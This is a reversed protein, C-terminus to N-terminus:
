EVLAVQHHRHFGIGADRADAFATGFVHQFLAGAAQDALIRAVDLPKPPYTAPM